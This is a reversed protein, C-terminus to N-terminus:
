TMYHHTRIVVSDTMGCRKILKLIILERALARKTLPAGRYSAESLRYGKLSTVSRLSWYLSSEKSSHHLMTLISHRLALTERERMMLSSIVGSDINKNTLGTVIIRLEKMGTKM